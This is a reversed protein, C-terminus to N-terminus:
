RACVYPQRTSPMSRVGSSHQGLAALKGVADYQLDTIGPEFWPSDIPKWIQGTIPTRGTPHVLPAGSFRSVSGPKRPSLGDFLPRLILLWIVAWKSMEPQEVSSLAEVEDFLGAQAPEARRQWEDRDVSGAPPRLGILAWYSFTRCSVMFM